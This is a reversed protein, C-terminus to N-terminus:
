TLHSVIHTQRGNRFYVRPVRRGVSSLLEYSITGSLGALEEVPIANLPADPLVGFLTVEDGPRVADLHSVDIMLMDMCVQGLIPARKGHILVSARNSLIRPYGDAYGISVVAIRMPQSAVFTRGYSVSAGSPIEKVQSVVSCLRMAPRPLFPMRMGPEPTHGYLLLGARAMNLHAQPYHVVAGSNACHFILEGDSLASLSKTIEAFNEVQRHTEPDDPRESCPLHTFVGEIQLGPLSFVPRLAHLTEEGQWIQGLRGMGTDIKLHAKLTLGSGKACASFACAMEADFLTQTLHNEALTAFLEPPTYGLILIPTAIGARRLEMGEDLGAVGLYDVQLEALLGSVTVAGHGYADAKVAALMRGRPPLLARLNQYNEEIASLSVEAWTRAFFM